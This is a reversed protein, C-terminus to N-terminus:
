HLIIVKERWVQKGNQTVTALYVGAPLNSVDILRNKFYHYLNTAAVRKGNIDFLEFLGDASTEYVINLWTTAPNPSIRYSNKTESPKVNNTYIVSCSDSGPLSDLDYNAQFRWIEPTSPSSCQFAIRGRAVHIPMATYEDKMIDVSLTQIGNKPNITNHCGNEIRVM